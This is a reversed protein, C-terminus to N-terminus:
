KCAADDCPHSNPYVTSPTDPYADRNWDESFREAAKDIMAPIDAKDNDAFVAGHVYRDHSAGGHYMSFEVFTQNRLVTNGTGDYVTCEFTIASCSGVLDCMQKVKPHAAALYEVKRTCGTLALLAACFLLLKKM